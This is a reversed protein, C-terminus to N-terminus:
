HFIAAVNAVSLLPTVNNSEYDRGNIHHLTQNSISGEYVLMSLESLATELTAASTSRKGLREGDGTFASSFYRRDEKPSAMADTIKKANALKGLSSWSYPDKNSSTPTNSNPHTVEKPPILSITFPSYKRLEKKEGSIPFNQQDQYSTVTRESTLAAYAAHPQHEWASSVNREFSDGKIPTGKVGVSDIEMDGDKNFKGGDGKASAEDLTEKTFAKGAEFSESLDAILTEQLDDGSLGVMSKKIQDATAASKGNAGLQFVSEKSLYAAWEIMAQDKVVQPANPNVPPVVKQGQYREQRTKGAASNFDAQMQGKTFKKIIVM